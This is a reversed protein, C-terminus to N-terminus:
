AKTPPTGDAHHRGLTEGDRGTAGTTPSEIVLQDGLHSRTIAVM